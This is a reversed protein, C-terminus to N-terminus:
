IILSNFGNQANVRSANLLEQKQTSLDKYDLKAQYLEDNETTMGQNAANLNQLM